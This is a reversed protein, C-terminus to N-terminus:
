RLPVDTTKGGETVRVTLHPQDPLLAVPGAIRTNKRVLQPHDGAAADPGNWNAQLQADGRAIVLWGQGRPLRLRAATADVVRDYVVEVNGNGRVLM